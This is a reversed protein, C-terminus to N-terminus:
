VFACIIHYLTPSHGLYIHSSLFALALAPSKSGAICLAFLVAPQFSFLLLIAVIIRYHFYSSARAYRVDASRQTFCFICYSLTLTYFLLAPM